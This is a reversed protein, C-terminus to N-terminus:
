WEVESWISEVSVGLYDAIQKKLREDPVIWGNVIKSVKAPDVNLHKALDFNKIGKRILTLKLQKNM